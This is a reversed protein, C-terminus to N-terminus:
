ENGAEQSAVVPTADSDTLEVVDADSEHFLTKGILGAAVGALAALMLGVKNPLPNAVVAVVGAVIVALGSSKNRLMTVIMGTFTVTAAIDLGWSEPNPITQGAIIGVLTWIQWNVYMLAASGLYYWQGFPLSGREEFRKFVIVFSEDTLTFGILPLWRAPVHRLYPALTASYLAHRLNVVFTTVIIFLASVNQAVLGAAIFQASGAFVFLSMAQAGFPSLGSNVALAGFIIGFPIAGVDVPITDRVGALFESRPTSVSTM